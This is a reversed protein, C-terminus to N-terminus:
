IGRGYPVTSYLIQQHRCKPRHKCDTVRATCILKFCHIFLANILSCITIEDFHIVLVLKDAM